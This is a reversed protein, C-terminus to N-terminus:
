EFWTPLTSGDAGLWSSVLACAFLRSKALCFPRHSLALGCTRCVAATSIRMDCASARQSSRRARRKPMLAPGFRGYRGITNAVTEIGDTRRATTSLQLQRASPCGRCSVIRLSHCAICFFVFILFEFLLLSLSSPVVRFFPSLAPCRLASWSKVEQCPSSAIGSSGINREQVFCQLVKALDALSLAIWFLLHTTALSTLTWFLFDYLLMNVLLSCRCPPVHETCTLMERTTAPKTDFAPQASVHM